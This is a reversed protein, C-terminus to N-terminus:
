ALKLISVLFGNDYAARKRKRKKSINEPTQSLLYLAMKRLINATLAANGTRLRCQDERFTVDLQWHLQNEISWHQRVM